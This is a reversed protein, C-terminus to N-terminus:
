PCYATLFFRWVRGRLAKNGEAGYLASTPSPCNKVGPTVPAFGAKKGRVACSLSVKVLHSQSTARPVGVQQPAWQQAQALVPMTVQGVVKVCQVPM